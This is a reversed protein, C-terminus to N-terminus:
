AKSRTVQSHRVPIWKTFSSPTTFQLTSHQVNSDTLSLYM